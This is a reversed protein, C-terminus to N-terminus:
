SEKFHMKRQGAESARQSTSLDPCLAQPQLWKTLPGNPWLHTVDTFKQHMVAGNQKPVSARGLPPRPFGRPLCLIFPILSFHALPRSSARSFEGSKSSLCKADYTCILSLLSLSLSIRCNGPGQNNRAWQSYQGIKCVRVGSRLPWTVKAPSLWWCLRFEVLVAAKCLTSPEPAPTPLGGPELWWCVNESACKSSM